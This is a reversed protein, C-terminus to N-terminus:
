YICPLFLQCLVVTPLLSPADSTPVQSKSLSSLLLCCVFVINACLADHWSLCVSECRASEETELADLLRAEEDLDLYCRGDRLAQLLDSAGMVGVRFADLNMFRRRLRSLWSRRSPIDPGMARTIQLSAAPYVFAFPMSIIPHVHSIQSPCLSLFPLLNM